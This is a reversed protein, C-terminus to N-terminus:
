TPYEFLAPRRPLWLLASNAIMGSAASRTSHALKTQARAHYRRTVFQPGGTKRRRACSVNSRPFLLPVRWFPDPRFM